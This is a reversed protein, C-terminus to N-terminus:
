LIKPDPILMSVTTGGPSHGVTLTAKLKEAFAKILRYGLSKPNEVSFTEPLGQGNDAVKLRIANEQKQLYIELVGGEVDKFAYKLSNSILENLILGIPIITDVDLKLPDVCTKIEIKENSIRYSNVLSNTLKEIYEVADVAVLDEDQYLKQHILAMSKVRNRGSLIAERAQPSELQRSQLSLLSSIVQLNNKVRHHIEKLLVEKEDLAKTIQVNKHALIRNAKKRLRFLYYLLFAILLSVLTGGILARTVRQYERQKVDAELKQIDRERDFNYQMELQTLQKVNEANFLSDKLVVYQEYFDLAAGTNGTQKFLRYLCECAKSRADPDSQGTALRLGARCDQEADSFRGSELHLRGREVYGETLGSVYNEQQFVQIARNFEMLATDPNGMQRYVRGINFQTLAISRPPMVGSEKLQLSRNLSELAKDYDSLSLHMEGINGMVVGASTHNGLETLLDFADTYYRIAMEFDEISHYLNGISNDLISIQGKRKKRDQEDLASTDIKVLIEKAKLITELAQPMNGNKKQLGSQTALIQSHLFPDDKVSGDSLAQDLYYESSDPLSNYYFFNGMAYLYNTVLNSNGSTKAINGARKLLRMSESVYRFKGGILSLLTMVQESDNELTDIDILIQDIEKHINQDQAYLQREWQSGLSSFLIFALIFNRRIMKEYTIM